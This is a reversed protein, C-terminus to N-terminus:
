RNQADQSIFTFVTRDQFFEHAGTFIVKEDGGIEGLVIAKNDYYLYHNSDVWGLFGGRGIVAPPQATSGLSLQKGAAVRYIFHKSDPSWSWDYHDIYHQSEYPETRGTLINGLYFANQEHNNYIIWNGDPSIKAM